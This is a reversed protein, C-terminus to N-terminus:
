HVKDSKKNMEVQCVIILKDLEQSLNIIDSSTLDNSSEILNNLNDRKDDM